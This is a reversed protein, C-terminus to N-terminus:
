VRAVGTVPVTEDTKRKPPPVDKGERAGARKVKPFAKMIGYASM